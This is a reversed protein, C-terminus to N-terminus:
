WIIHYMKVIQYSFGHLLNPTLLESPKTLSQPKFHNEWSILDPSDFNLSLDMKQTVRVIDNLAVHVKYWCCACVIFTLAKPFLFVVM